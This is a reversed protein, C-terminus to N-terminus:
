YENTAAPRPNQTTPHPKSDKTPPPTPPRHLTAGQGPATRVHITGGTQAVIGYVTSLGLGTGTGVDKTTFFPEFIREATAQEMGTGTDTVELVVLGDENRTSIAVTGSGAM